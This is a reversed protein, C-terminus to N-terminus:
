HDPTAVVVADITRDDFVHRLDKIFKPERKQRKDISKLAGAVVNEDPDCIAVIEVDDFSSFGHLLGRGRGNLGLVALRIKENPKDAAGAATIASIAAVSATSTQLFRRRNFESV